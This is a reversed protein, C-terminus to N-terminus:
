MIMATMTVILIMASMIDLIKTSITPNPTPFIFNFIHFTNPQISLGILFILKPINATILM